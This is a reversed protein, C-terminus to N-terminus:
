HIHAPLCCPGTSPKRPTRLIPELGREDNIAGGPGERACAVVHVYDVGIFEAAAVPELEVDAGPVPVPSAM